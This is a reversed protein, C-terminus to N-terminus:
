GPKESFYDLVEQGIAQLPLEKEVAGILKAARPMGYVTCTAEDQGITFAGSKRMALLGDAGDKGMGTLLIGIANAGASTALSNFLVSVAPRHNGVAEGERTRCVYHNGEKVVIMHKGGTAIYAHGPKAITERTVECITLKCLGNMRQGFSSVFSEQIHQVIVIPPLNDPLATLLTTLAQIGGTSSGIGIIANKTRKTAPHFIMAPAITKSHVKATAAIKIKAILEEKFAQLILPQNLDEPKGVCEVAGIDLAKLSAEAGKQTLTSIMVVPMPRLTMIKELFALGDMKPMEIDLTVVQPNHQKIKERADYPDCATDVVTIDTETSLLATFLRRILVSDDVILVTIPKAM